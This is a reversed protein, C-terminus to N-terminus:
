NDESNENMEHLEELHEIRERKLREYEDPESDRPVSEGALAGEPPEEMTGHQIDRENTM